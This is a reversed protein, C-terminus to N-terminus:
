MFLLFGSLVPAGFLIGDIRDLIGGHGPLLNGSDKVAHIRKLYSKTLDGLQAALVVAVSLWFILNAQVGSFIFLGALLGIITGGLLGGLSGSITKKPSILPALAPGGIKRGVFFAATDNVSVVLILWFILASADKLMTLSTLVAGCFGILLIGLFLEAAIKAGQELSHRSSLMMFLVALLFSACFAAGSVGLQYYRGIDPACFTAPSSLMLIIFAPLAGLFFYVVLRHKVTSKEEATLSASGRTCM